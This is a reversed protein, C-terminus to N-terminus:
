VHARGIEGYIIGEEMERPFPTRSRITAKGHIMDHSTLIFTGAEEEEMSHTLKYGESERQLELFDVGRAPPNEENRYWLEMMEEGVRRLVPGPSSYANSIEKVLQFFLDAPASGNPNLRNVEELLDESVIFGLNRCAKAFAIPYFGKVLM